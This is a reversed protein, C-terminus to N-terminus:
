CCLVCHGPPSRLFTEKSKPSLFFHQKERKMDTQSPQLLQSWRAMLRLIFNLVSAAGPGDCASSVPARLAQAQLAGSRQVELKTTYYIGKHIFWTSDLKRKNAASLLRVSNGQLFFVSTSSLPLCLRVTSVADAQSDAISIDM